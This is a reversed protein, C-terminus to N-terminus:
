RALKIKAVTQTVDEGTPETYTNVWSLRDVPAKGQADHAATVPGLAHAVDSVHLGIQAVVEAPVRSAGNFPKVLAGITNDLCRLRHLDRADASLYAESAEFELQNAHGPKDVKITLPMAPYGMGQMSHQDFTVTHAGKNSEGAFERRLTRAIKKVKNKLSM